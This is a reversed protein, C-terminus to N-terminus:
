ISSIKRDQDRIKYHEGCFDQIIRHIVVEGETFRQVEWERHEAEFEAKNMNVFEEPMELEESKLRDCVDYLERKILVSGPSIREERSEVAVTSVDPQREQMRMEEDRRAIDYNIGRIRNLLIGTLIGLIAIAILLLVVLYKRM